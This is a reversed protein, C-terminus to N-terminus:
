CYDVPSAVADNARDGNAVGHTRTADAHGHEAIDDIIKQVSADEGIKEFM